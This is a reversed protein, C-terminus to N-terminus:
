SKYKNRTGVPRINRVHRFHNILVAMFALILMLSKSSYMNHNALSYFAITFLISRFLFRYDPSLRNGWTFYRFLFYIFALVAFIGAEGWLLLYQNHVGATNSHMKSMSKFGSGFVPKEQIKQWGILALKSRHTTTEENIEGGLLGRFEQIREQQSKTLLTSYQSLYVGSVLLIALIGIMRILGYRGSSAKLSYTLYFALVGFTMAYSAKSFTVFIGVMILLTILIHLLRKGKNMFFLEFALALVAIYGAVNANLNIGSAREGTVVFLDSTFFYSIVVTVTNILFSFRLLNLVVKENLISIIFKFGLLGAVFILLSPLYYRLGWNLKEWDRSFISSLSAFILFTCFVGLWIRVPSNYLLKVGQSSALVIILLVVILIIGSLTGVQNM